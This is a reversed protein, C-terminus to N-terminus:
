KITFFLGNIFILTLSNNNCIKLKQIIVIIGLTICNQEFNRKAIKKFHSLTIPNESKM